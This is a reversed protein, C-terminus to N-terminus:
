GEKRLDGELYRRWLANEGLSEVFEAHRRRDDASLRSPLPRPRAGYRAAAGPTVHTEVVGGPMEREGFSLGIQRGGILEVYVAALLQADLLAGHLDRASNDVGFRRCLADLTNQAGPFKRRAIELTDICREPPIPERGVISLEWNLFGRDFEANHIVLPADGIFELFSDVVDAFRPKDALFEATLGHVKVADEPVDREPNLYVHFTRGTPIHNNLEVAGIEIVRHGEQPKLGTTETDLCIERM